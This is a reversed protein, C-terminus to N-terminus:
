AEYVKSATIRCYRQFLIHLKDFFFKPLNYIKDYRLRFWEANDSQDCTKMEAVQYNEITM